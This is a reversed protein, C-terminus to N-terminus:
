TVYSLGIYLQFISDVDDMDINTDVGSEAISLFECYAAGEVTHCFVNDLTGSYDRFTGLGIGKGAAAALDASTFPLSLRLTGDPATEGNIALNGQVTVLRGVKTYALTNTTPITYSGSTSCTLTPEYTGEEYETGSDYPTNELTPASAGGAGDGVTGHLDNGSKDGWQHAGASSGDYEAVAGIPVVSFDKISFTNGTDYAALTISASEATFEVTYTGDETVNSIENYTDHHLVGAHNASYNVVTWTLRYRKGVTMGINKYSGTNWDGDLGGGATVDLEDNGTDASVSASSWGDAWGDTDSTFDSDYTATQSAGKYKFPVSAGSYLEKVETATLAKNWLSVATIQGSLTNSNARVWNGIQWNTANNVMGTYTGTESPTMTVPNGNVYYSGTKTSYDFTGVVHYETETTIIGSASALGISNSADESTYLYWTLSGDSGVGVVFARTPDVGRKAILNPSNTLSTAMFRVSFSIDSAGFELKADDAIEIYDDSGDFRYYPAPMTNAVHDQRGQENVIYNGQQNQTGDATIRMQESQSANGDTTYFLLDAGNESASWTADALAEIRAGVTMTNSADEAGAFELVGLRHGSAMVAGDNSGLRLNGGQSASSTTTDEIDLDVAPSTGGGIGVNGSSDIRLRETQNTSFTLNRSNLANFGWELNGNTQVQLGGTINSNGFQAVTEATTGTTKVDLKSAPSDTGIGVNGDSQLIMKTAAAGDYGVGFEINGRTNSGDGVVKIHAMDTGASNEFLINGLVGTSTSSTRELNIVSTGAGSLHLLHDPSASGIGVNSTTANSELYLGTAQVDGSDDMLEINTGAQAYTDARKVLDQYSAAITQGKLTAM